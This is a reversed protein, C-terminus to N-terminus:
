VWWGWFVRLCILGGTALFFGVIFELLDKYAEDELYHDQNIEYLCFLGAGVVVLEWHVLAAAATIFGALYHFPSRLVRM